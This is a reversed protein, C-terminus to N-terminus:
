GRGMGDDEEEEEEDSSHAERVAYVSGTNARGQSVPAGQTEQPLIEEPVCVCSGEGGAKVTLSALSSKFGDDTSAAVRADPHCSAM